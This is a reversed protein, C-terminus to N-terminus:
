AAMAKAPLAWCHEPRGHPGMRTTNLRVLAGCNPDALNTISRRVSPMLWRLGAEIGKAYVQSPALPCDAARYIAMVADDQREAQKIAGALQEITLPTTAWYPHQPRRKTRTFSLPLQGTLNTANGSVDGTRHEPHSAAAQPKHRAAFM